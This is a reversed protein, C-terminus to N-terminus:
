HASYQQQPPSLKVEITKEDDDVDFLEGFTQYNRATVQILVKGKPLEPIKVTGEQSTRMEWSTKMKKGLKVLSRGEFKVIVNARDVPKGAANTVLVTLKTLDAALAPVALALILLARRM